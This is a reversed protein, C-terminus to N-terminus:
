TRTCTFRITAFTNNDGTITLEHAKFLMNNPSAKEATITTGRAPLESNSLKITYKNELRHHIL